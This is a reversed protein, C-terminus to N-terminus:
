AYNNDDSCVIKKNGLGNTIQPPIYIIHVHYSTACIVPILPRLWDVKRLSVWILGWAVAMVRWAINGRIKNRRHACLIEQTCCKVLVWRNINLVVNIFHICFCEKFSFKHASWSKKHASMERGTHVRACRLPFIAVLGSLTCHVNLTSM